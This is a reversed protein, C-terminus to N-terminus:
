AAGAGAVAAPPGLVIGAAGQGASHAELTHVPVEAGLVAEWPSIPLDVYVDRGEAEFLPHARLRVRLLLDGPPGGGIGPAGQEALRILQGDRVGGPIEVEFDRGDGLSIRRTGGRMAEELTLEPVAERDSGRMPFGELGDTASRGRARGRGGFLGEFFESFDGGGFDFRVDDANFGDAGAM